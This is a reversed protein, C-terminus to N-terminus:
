QEMSLLIYM